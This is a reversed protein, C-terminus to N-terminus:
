SRMSLLEKDQLMIQTTVNFEEVNLFINMFKWQIADRNNHIRKPPHINNSQEVINQCYAEGVNGFVSTFNEWGM